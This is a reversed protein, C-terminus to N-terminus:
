PSHDLAQEWSYQYHHGPVGEHLFMWGADSLSSQEKWYNYYLIATDNESPKPMYYGPPSNVQSPIIPRFSLRFLGPLHDTKFYASIKRRVIKKVEKYFADISKIDTSTSSNVTNDKQYCRAKYLSYFHRSELMGYNYVSDPSLDLSTYKRILFRYWSGGDFVNNVGVSDISIYSTAQAKNGPYSKQLRILEIQFQAIYILHDRQIQEAKSEPQMSKAERLYFTFFDERKKLVGAGPIQKLNNRFDLEWYPIDM